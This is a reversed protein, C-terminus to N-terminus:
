APVGKVINAIRTRPEVAEFEHPEGPQTDLIDGSGFTESKSPTRVIIAGRLVIIIHATAADHVHMPLIDGAAAFDYVSVQLTGPTLLKLTPAAM